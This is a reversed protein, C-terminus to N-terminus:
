GTSLLLYLTKRLSLVSGRHTPSSGTLGQDLTLYELVSGYHVEGKEQTVM